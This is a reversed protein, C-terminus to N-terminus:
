IQPAVAPSFLEVASLSSATEALEEHPKVETIFHALENIEDEKNVSEWYSEGAKVWTCRIPKVAHVDAVITRGEDEQFPENMLDRTLSTKGAEADGLLLIRGYKVYCTGKKLAEEYM